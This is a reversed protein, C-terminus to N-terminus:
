ERRKQAKAGGFLHRSAEHKKEKYHFGPHLSEYKKGELGGYLVRDHEISRRTKKGPKSAPQVNKFIPDDPYVRDELVLKQAAMRLAEKVTLKHEEGYRALLQYETENLETQAVKM